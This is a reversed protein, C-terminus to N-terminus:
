NIVHRSKFLYNFGVLSIRPYPGRLSCVFAEQGVLESARSPQVINSSKSVSTKCDGTCKPESLTNSGASTALDTDAIVLVPLPDGEQNLEDGGDGRVFVSEGARSLIGSEVAASPTPAVAIVFSETGIAETRVAEPPVVPSSKRAFFLADEGNTFPTGRQATGDEQFFPKAKILMFFINKALGWVTPNRLISTTRIVSFYRFM